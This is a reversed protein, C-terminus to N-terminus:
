CCWYHESRPSLQFPTDAPEAFWGGFRSNQVVHQGEMKMACVLALCEQTIIKGCKAHLETIVGGDVNNYVTLGDFLVLVQEGAINLAMLWKNKSTLENKMM